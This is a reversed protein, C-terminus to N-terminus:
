TNGSKRLYDSVLYIYIYIMTAHYHSLYLSEDTKHRIKLESRLHQQRSLCDISIFSSIPKSQLSVVAKGM